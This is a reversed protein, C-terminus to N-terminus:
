RNPYPLSNRTQVLFFFSFFFFFYPPVLKDPTSLSVASLVEKYEGVVKTEIKAFTLWIIFLDFFIV